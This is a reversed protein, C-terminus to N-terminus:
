SVVYLVESQKSYIESQPQHIRFPILGCRNVYYYSSITHKITVFCVSATL